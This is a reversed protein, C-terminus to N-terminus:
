VGTLHRFIILYHLPIKRAEPSVGKPVSSSKPAKKNIQKRDKKNTKLDTKMLQQTFDSYPVTQGQM